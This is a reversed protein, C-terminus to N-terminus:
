DGKKKVEVIKGNFIYLAENILPNNLAEKERDSESDKGRGRSRVPLQIDSKKKLSSIKVRVKRGFFQECITKLQKKNDTDNASELFISNSVFGLEVEEEDLRLPCGQELVAALM